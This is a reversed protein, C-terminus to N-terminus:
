VSHYEFVGLPLCLRHGIMDIIICDRNLNWDAAILEPAFPLFQDELLQILYSFM